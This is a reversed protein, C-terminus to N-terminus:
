ARLLVLAMEMLVSWDGKYADPVQIWDKMARNKGSPDWNKSGEFKVLLEPIGGRGIKFVMEDEFFSVIAKKDVKGCPKGFMQGLEAGETKEILAYFHKQNETPM